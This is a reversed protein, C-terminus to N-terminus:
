VDDVDSWFKRLCNSNWCCYFGTGDDYDMKFSKDYNGCIVCQYTDYNGLLNYFDDEGTEKDTYKKLFLRKATDIELKKILCKIEDTM